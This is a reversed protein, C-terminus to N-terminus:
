RKSDYMESFKALQQDSCGSWGLLIVVPEKASLLGDGDTNESLGRGDQGGFLDASIGDDHSLDSPYPSPFTIHYELEGDQDEQKAMDDAHSKDSAVSVTALHYTIITFLRLHNLSMM